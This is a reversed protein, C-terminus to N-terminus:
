DKWGLARAFKFLVVFCILLTIYGSYDHFSEGAKAGYANGVVGILAIRLGNILLGLPIIMAVMMMNAWWKLRAILMFFATFAMLALMLKLGSCPVAINLIYNDLHVTTPESPFVQIGLGFLKLLQIAVSTSALQLPNTYNEIVSSFLPLCFVLYMIPLMLGFMWRGGALFWVVTLMTMLLLLSMVMFVSLSVAIATLGLFLVLLLAAPYFPKVPIQSLKPWWRYVVYGSILPVLFGHSYYGDESTWLSYLRGIMPFYLAAFAAFLLVGPIFGKSSVIKQLLEMYDVKASSTNANEVAEGEQLGAMTTQEAM